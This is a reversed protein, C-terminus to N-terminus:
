LQKGDAASSILEAIGKTDNLELVRSDFKEAPHDTVIAVRNEPNSVPEESVGKRVIEIKPYPYDKFGELLIIDAEPFMRILDSEDEETGIRQIMMRHESFVAVGYAGTQSFKYSDTGPVDCIFDHGDHKIVAVKYGKEAMVPVLRTILTTKGSNKKGCIALIFPKSM